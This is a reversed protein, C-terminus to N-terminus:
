YSDASVVEGGARTGLAQYVGINLSLKLYKVSGDGFLYNSGGPHYSMSNLDDFNPNNIFYLSQFLTTHAHDDDPEEKIAGSWVTELDFHNSSGVVKLYVANTREGAMLTQSLGDTVDAFRTRSNRSFLGRRDEPTADM